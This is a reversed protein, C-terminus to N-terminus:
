ENTVGQSSALWISDAARYVFSQCNWGGNTTGVTLFGHVNAPAAVTFPGAGQKFCLRKGQGDAGAGLTFSTINGTLVIYSTDLSSSFTPTASFAVTEASATLTATFSGDGAIHSREAGFADFSQLLDATQGATAAGKIGFIEYQSPTGIFHTPWTATYSGTSAGVQWVASTGAFNNLSNTTSWPAGPVNPADEWNVSFILDNPQTSSGTIPYPSAPQNLNQVIHFDILDGAAAANHIQQVFCQANGGAPNFNITTSGGAINRFYWLGLLNNAASVTNKSLLVPTEGTSLSPATVTENDWVFLLDGATLTQVTSNCLGFGANAYTLTISPATAASAAAKLVFTPTSANISLISQPATWVNTRGFNIDLSSGTATPTLLISNLTSSLADSVASPGLLTLLTYGSHLAKYIAYGSGATGNGAGPSGVVTQTNDSVWYEYNDIPTAPLNAVLVPATWNPYAPSIGLSNTAPFWSFPWSFNIQNPTTAPPTVGNFAVLVGINLVNLQSVLYTPSPCDNCFPGNQLGVNAILSGINSGTVGSVNVTVQQGNPPFNFTPCSGSGTCSSTPGSIGATAFGDTIAVLQVGTVNAAPLWSPLVIGSYALNTNGGFGLIGGRFMAATGTAASTTSAYCTNYAFVGSQSTTCNPFPIFVHTSDQGAIAMQITSGVQPVEAGMGGFADNKFTVSQYGTDLSPAADLFNLPSQTAVLTGNHEIQTLTGTWDCRVQGGTNACTIQTGNVINLLTQSANNVGNTQLTPGGTGASKCTFGGNADSGLLACNPPLGALCAAVSTCPTWQGLGANWGYFAFPQPTNQLGFSAYTNPIKQWLDTSSNWTYMGMPTPQVGIVQAPLPVALLLLLVMLLRRM